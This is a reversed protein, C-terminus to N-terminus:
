PLNKNGRLYTPFELWLFFDLRKGLMGLFIPLKIVGTM